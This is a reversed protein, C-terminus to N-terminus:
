QIELASAVALLGVGVVFLFVSSLNLGWTISVYPNSWDWDKKDRDYNEELAALHRDLAVHGLLLSVVTCSLSILLAAWAGFLLWPTKSGGADSFSFSLGLLVTNVAIIAKDYSEIASQRGTVLDARYHLYTEHSM